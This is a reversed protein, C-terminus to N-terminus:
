YPSNDLQYQGVESPVNWWTIGADYIQCIKRMDDCPISGTITCDATKIYTWHPRANRDPTQLRGVAYGYRSFFDDIQRADNRNLSVRTGFFDQMMAGVNVNGCAISGKCIDSAISAQYKRINMDTVARSLRTATTEGIGLLNGILGGIGQTATESAIQAMKMMEPVSNQAVWAWYADMNWSCQPFNELTLNQTYDERSYGTGSGRLKYEFPRLIVKVPQSLTGYITFNPRLGNFFEYRLDLGKGSNNDVHYFNYPYTYLKHNKPTYGDLSDNTTIANPRNFTLLSAQASQPVKHDSPQQASFTNPAVWIGQIADPTQIKSAILANLQDIESGHYYYYTLGGYLGDYLKGESWVPSPEPDPDDPDDPDPTPTPTDVEAVGVIYIYDESLETINEWGNYVYEGVNVPEAEIHEGIGDTRTHQREVYCIDLQYNFHWTQMVDIEFEIESTVNNVYEVSKIFAYFWKNGFATNQFMMYNCDYLNEAPQQLRAVGRKVRQYTQSTFAYKTMSQFYARQASESQFLITHDYTTDLPVNHLLRINTNPEVWM